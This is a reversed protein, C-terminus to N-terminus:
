KKLKKSKQVRMGLHNVISKLTAIQKQQAAKFKKHDEIIKDRLRYIKKYEVEEENFINKSEGESESRRYGGKKPNDRGVLDEHLIETESYGFYKSITILDDLGPKSVGKEYNNWTTSKFGIVAWLDSQKLGRQERLYKLNKALYKV